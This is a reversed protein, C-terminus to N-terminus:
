AKFEMVQVLHKSASQHNSPVKPFALIFTLSDTYEWFTWSKQYPWLFESFKVLYIEFGYPHNRLNKHGEWFLQVNQSYVSLKVKKHGEWFLQVKLGSIHKMPFQLNRTLFSHLLQNTPTTWYCIVAIGSPSFIQPHWYYLTPLIQEGPQFLTILDALFNPHWHCGQRWPEPM